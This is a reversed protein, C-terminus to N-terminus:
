GGCIYSKKMIAGFNAFMADADKWYVDIKVVNENGVTKSWLDM